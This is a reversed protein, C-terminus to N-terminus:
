PGSRLVNRLRLSCFIQRAGPSGRVGGNSSSSAVRRKLMIRVKALPVFAPRATASSWTQRKNTQRLLVGVRYQCALRRPHAQLGQHFAMAFSAIQPGLRDDQPEADRLLVSLAFGRFSQPPLTLMRACRRAGAM